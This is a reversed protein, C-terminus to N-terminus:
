RTVSFRSPRRIQCRPQRRAGASSDECELRPSKLMYLGNSRVPRVATMVPPLPPMPRPMARAAETKAPNSGWITVHAGSDLLARAMGLGIGGNGGTIVATRGTLDFPKYM